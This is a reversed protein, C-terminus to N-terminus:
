RPAEDLQIMARSVLRVCRGWQNKKITKTQGSNSLVFAMSEELSRDVPDYEDSRYALIAYSFSGDSRKVFAFDNDLMSGVADTGATTAHSPSRLTEGLKYGRRCGLKDRRAPAAEPLVSTNSRKNSLTASIQTNEEDSSNDQNLRRSKTPNTSKWVESRVRASILARTDDEVARGRTARLGKPPPPYMQSKKLLEQNM